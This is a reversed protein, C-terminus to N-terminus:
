EGASPAPAAAGSSAPAPAPKKSGADALAAARNVVARALPAHPGSPYQALYRRATSLAAADAGGSNQLELIRGLAEKALAGSPQETLYRQFWSLADGGGFRGLSFAAMAASATGPFRRRATLYAQRALNARGAYRASDGLLLLDGGSASNLVTDIGDREATQVALKYEGQRALAQWTLNPGADAASKVSGPKTASGAPAADKSAAGADLQEKEAAPPVSRNLAASGEPSLKTNGNLDIELRQGAVVTRGDGLTPGTVLVSGDQMLLLFRRESDHWELDFRTGTVEVEFPGAAFSWHAGTQHSVSVVARGDQLTVDAGHQNMAKLQARAGPELLVTTGESFRLPTQSSAQLWEGVQCARGASVIECSLQKEPSRLFFFLAGLTFAAAALLLLRPPRRSPAQTEKLFNERARELDANVLEPRGAGVADQQRAVAEGLRRLATM